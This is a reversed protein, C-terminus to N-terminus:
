WIGVVLQAVAAWPPKPSWVLTIQPRQLRVAGGQLVLAEAVGPGDLVAVLGVVQHVLEGAPAAGDADDVDEFRRRRWRGAFAEESVQPVPDLRSEWFYASAKILSM